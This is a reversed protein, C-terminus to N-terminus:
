LLFFFLGVYAVRHRKFRRWVVRWYSPYQEVASVTIPPNATIVPAQNTM